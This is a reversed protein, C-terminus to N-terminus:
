IFPHAAVGKRIEMYFNFVRYSFAVLYGYAQAYGASVLTIPQSERGGAALDVDRGDGNNLERVPLQDM